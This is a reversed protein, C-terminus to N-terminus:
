GGRKVSVNFLARARRLDAKTDIEAWKAGQTDVARFVVGEEIMRQFAAEYYERAGGSRLVLRCVDFLRRSSLMDIKALGISEGLSSMVGDGAKGIRLVRGDWDGCAKVAEHDPGVSSDCLLVNGKGALALPIVKPEFVLDGDILLFSKCRAARRAMWLSYLTNTRAYIPNRVISVHLRPFKQRVYHVVQRERYGTVLTIVRIGARELAALTRGLIPVGALPLLTKPTSSTLPRLREGRGAM